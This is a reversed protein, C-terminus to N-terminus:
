AHVHRPIALSAERENPPKKMLLSRRITLPEPLPLSPPPMLLPLVSIKSLLETM